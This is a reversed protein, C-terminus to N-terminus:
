KVRAGTPKCNLRKDPPEPNWEFSDNGIRLLLWGVVTDKDATLTATQCFDRAKEQWKLEVAALFETRGVPGLSRVCFARRGYTPGKPSNEGVVQIARHTFMPDSLVPSSAM